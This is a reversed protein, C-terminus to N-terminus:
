TNELDDLSLGFNECVRLASIVGDEHFGYRWYAGAYWTRREHSSIERWGRQAVTGDVTFEPHHYNIRRIIKAPDISDTDNLTVLYPPDADLSQLINMNYTLTTARQKSDAPLHYNWAAWAARRTPLISTDTHVIAENAQYPISSLIKQEDENADTLMTLAQDSHCALVVQDFEATEGTQLTLKVSDGTRVVGIVPRELRYDGELAKAMPRVYERSGGKIVRWTPRGSVRLFGHNYFFQLFFRAPFDRMKHLPASWIAAGMPIIYYKRFWESYNGADLFEGLTTNDDEPWVELVQEARKAFKFIDRLLGWFKPRMLNRRQAFMSAATQGKYELGNEDAKVSFSMDSPQSAVGLHKLLRIFNPYTRDNYVIFGTDVPWTRGRKEIDITNTHGGLYDAAEYLRVEHKQRLLYATLLGSIGAGVIAIRM